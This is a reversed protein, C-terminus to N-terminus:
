STAKCDYVYGVGCWFKVEPDLMWQHSKDSEIKVAISCLSFNGLGMTEGCKGAPVRCVSTCFAM